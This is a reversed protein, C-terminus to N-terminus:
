ETPEPLPIPHELTIEIMDGIRNATAPRNIDLWRAKKEVLANIFEPPFGQPGDKMKVAPYCFGRGAEKAALRAPPTALLLASEGIAVAVHRRCHPTEM